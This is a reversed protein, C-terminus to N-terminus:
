AGTCRPLWRVPAHVILCASPDARAPTLSPDHEGVIFYTVGQLQLFRSTWSVRQPAAKGFSWAIEFFGASPPARGPAM